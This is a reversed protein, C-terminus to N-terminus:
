TAVDTKSGPTMDAPWEKSKAQGKEDLIGIQRMRVKEAQFRENGRAMVQGMVANWTTDHALNPVRVPEPNMVRREATPPAVRELSPVVLQKYQGSLENLAAIIRGAHREKLSLMYLSLAEGFFASFTKIRAACMLNRITELEEEDIEFQVRAM